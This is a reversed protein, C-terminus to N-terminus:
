IQGTRLKSESCQEGISKLLPTIGHARCDSLCEFWGLQLMRLRSGPSGLCYSSSLQSLQLLFWLVRM